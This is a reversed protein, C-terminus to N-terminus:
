NLTEGKCIRLGVPQSEIYWPASSDLPKILHVFSFIDIDLKSAEPPLKNM